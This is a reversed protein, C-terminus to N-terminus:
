VSRDQRCGRPFASGRYNYLAQILGDGIAVPYIGDDGADTGGGAPTNRGPSGGPLGADKGKLASDLFGSAYGRMANQVVSLHVADPGFSSEFPLLDVRPRLAIPDFQIRSGHFGRDAAGTGNGAQCRDYLVGQAHVM